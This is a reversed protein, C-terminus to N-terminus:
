NSTYHDSGFPLSEKLIGLPNKGKTIECTIGNNKLLEIANKFDQPTAEGAKIKAALVDAITELLTALKEELERKNGM